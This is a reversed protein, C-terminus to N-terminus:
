MKVSALIHTYQETCHAAWGLCWVIKIHVTHCSLTKMCLYLIAYYIPWGQVRFVLDCTFLSSHYKSITLGHCRTTTLVPSISCGSVRWGGRGGMVALTGCRCWKPDVKVVKISMWLDCTQDHHIKLLRRASVCAHTLWGNNLLYINLWRPPVWAWLTKAANSWFTKVM